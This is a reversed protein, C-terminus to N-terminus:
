GKTEGLYKRTYSKGFNSKNREFKALGYILVFFFDINSYEKKATELFRLGHFTVGIPVKFATSILGTKPTCKKKQNLM